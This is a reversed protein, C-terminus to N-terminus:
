FAGWRYTGTPRRPLGGLRRSCMQFNRRRASRRTPELDGPAPRLREVWSTDHDLPAFVWVPGSAARHRGTLRVLEEKTSTAVAAGQWALLTPVAIASTKGLRQVGASIPQLRYM